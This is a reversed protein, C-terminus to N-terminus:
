NSMLSHMLATGEYLEIIGCNQRLPRFTDLLQADNTCSWNPFTASNTYSPFELVCKAARFVRLGTLKCSSLSGTRMKSSYYTYLYMSGFIRFGSANQKPGSRPTLNPARYFSGKEGSKSKLFASVIYGRKYDIRLRDPRALRM